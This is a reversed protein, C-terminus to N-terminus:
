AVINRILGACPATNAYRSAFTARFTLVIHRRDTEINERSKVTVDRKIGVIFCDKNFLLASNLTNGSGEVVGYQTTTRLLQTQIIPIGLVSALQGSNITAAAASGIQQAQIVNDITLLDLYTSLPVLLRMNPPDYFTENDAASAFQSGLAAIDAVTLANGGADTEVNGYNNDLAYRRLGDWATRPDTAGYTSAADGGTGSALTQVISESNGNIIADDMGKAAANQMEPITIDQIVNVIMDELAEEEVQVMIAMKTPTLTIQRSGPTASPINNADTTDGSATAYTVLNIGTGAAPIKLSDTAQPITIKPIVGAVQYQQEMRQIFDASFATPVWELGSGATDPTLAKALESNKRIHTDYYALEQPARKMIHSMVVLTDNHKQLESVAEERTGFRSSETDVMKQLTQRVGAKDSNKIVDAGDTEDYEFVSTHDDRISKQLQKGLDKMDDAHKTTFEEKFKTLEELTDSKFKSIMEQESLKRKQEKLDDSLKQSISHIHRLADTHVKKEAM